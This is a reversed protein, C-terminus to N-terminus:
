RTKNDLVLLWRELTFSSLSFSCTSFLWSSCHSTSVFFESVESTAPTADLQLKKRCGASFQCVVIVSQRVCAAIRSFVDDACVVAALLAQHQRGRGFSLM